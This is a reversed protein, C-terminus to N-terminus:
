ILGFSQGNENNARILVLKRESETAINKIADTVRPIMPWQQLLKRSDAPRCCSFGADFGTRRLLNAPESFFQQGQKGSEQIQDRLVTIEKLPADAQSKTEFTESAHQVLTGQSAAFHM